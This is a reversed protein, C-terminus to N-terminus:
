SREKTFDKSESVKGKGKQFTRAKVGRNVPKVYQRNVKDQIM